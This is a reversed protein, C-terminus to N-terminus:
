QNLVPKFNHGFSDDIMYVSDNVPGSINDGTDAVLNIVEVHRDGSNFNLNPLFIDCEKDWTGLVVSCLQALRRIDSSQRNLIQGILKM